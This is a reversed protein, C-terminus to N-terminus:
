MLDDIGPRSDKTYTAEFALNIFEKSKGNNLNVMFKNSTMPIISKADRGVEIINDPTSGPYYIIIKICKIAM